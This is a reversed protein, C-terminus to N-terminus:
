ITKRAKTAKSTTYSTYMCMSFCKNHHCMLYYTLPSSSVPETKLWEVTLRCGNALQDCLWATWRATSILVLWPCHWESSRFTVASCWQPPPAIHRSLQIDAGACATGIPM